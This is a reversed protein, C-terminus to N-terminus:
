YCKMGKADDLIELLLHSAKYLKYWYSYNKEVENLLEVEKSEQGLIGIVSQIKLAEKSNM